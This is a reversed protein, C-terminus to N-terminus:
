PASRHREEANLKLNSMGGGGVAVGAIIRRLPQVLSQYALRVQSLTVVAQPKGEGGVSGPDVSGDFGPPELQAPYQIELVDLLM